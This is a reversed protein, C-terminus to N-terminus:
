QRFILIYQITIVLQSVTKSEHSLKHYAKYDQENSIGKCDQENSIGKIIKNM